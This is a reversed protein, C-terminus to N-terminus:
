TSKFDRTDQVTGDTLTQRRLNSDQVTRDTTTIKKPRKKQQFDVWGLQQSDGCCERVRGALVVGRGKKHM